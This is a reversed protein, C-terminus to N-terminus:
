DELVDFVPGIQKFGLGSYLRATQEAHVQTSIGATAMAAGIQKAWSAYGTLLRAASTGGRHEPMVFLAMDFAILGDCAWHESAGGLFVGVVEGGIVSVLVLGLPNCIQRHLMARVKAPNYPLQSFRPSEAAMVQGLAVLEDIDAHTAPRISM